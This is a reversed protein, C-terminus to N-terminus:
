NLNFSAGINFSVGNNYKSAADKNYKAFPVSFESFVGFGESFFYRAGLHGGFNKLGLNLGPYMDFKPSINLVNGLNANFRAKADFRYDSNVDEIQSGGLLYSGLIGISFNEGLGFDAAALIGTGGNQITMGINLKTDDKGKFAQANAICFAGLLVITFIKKM